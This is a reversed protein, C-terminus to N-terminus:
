PRPKLAESEAYLTAQTPFIVTLCVRFLSQRLNTLGLFKARDAIMRTKTTVKGINQCM